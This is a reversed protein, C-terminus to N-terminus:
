EATHHIPLLGAFFAIIIGSGIIIFIPTRMRPHIKAFSTPLLGDRSIALFIRTLGYFMVLMVTTLGAIAGAGIFAAAVPYNLQLLASAVPSSVNLSQYPVIGTLCAAVLIYVFTCVVM